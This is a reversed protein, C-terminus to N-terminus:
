KNSLFCSNVPFYSSMENEKNGYVNDTCKQFLMKFETIIYSVSYPLIPFGYEKRKIQIHVM